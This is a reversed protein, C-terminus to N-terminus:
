VCDLPRWYVALIGLAEVWEKSSRRVSDDGGVISLYAITVIKAHAYAVMIPGNTVNPPIDEWVMRVCIWFASGPKCFV